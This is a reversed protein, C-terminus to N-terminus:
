VKDNDKDNKYLNSKNKYLNLWDSQNDNENITSYNM